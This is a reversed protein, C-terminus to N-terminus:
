AELIAKAENDFAKCLIEYNKQAGILPDVRSPSISSIAYRLKSTYFNMAVVNAKQVTLVISSMCNKCAILELLEMIFKGLGKGQVRSELQIEYVYLVPLGEELTFRYHVFGVLSDDRDLIVKEENHSAEYLLIHRAEPTVMEWRKVKEEAAWEPGYHREMNDKLLNQLRRKLSSTLKDGRGSELYVSLGNTDFQRFSPFSALHDKVASAAKILEDVAKKKELIKRRKPMRQTTINSQKNSHLNTSLATSGM